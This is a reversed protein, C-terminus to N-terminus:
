PALGFLRAFNGRMVMRVAADDLSALKDAFDLPRKSAKRTRGTPASCCASSGSRTALALPDEEPVAVGLAEGQPHDSPLDDFKGGLWRGNRALAVAHDLQALL